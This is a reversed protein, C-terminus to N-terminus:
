LKIQHTKGKKMKNVTLSPKFRADNPSSLHSQNAFDWSLSGTSVYPLECGGTHVVMELPMWQRKNQPGEHAVSSM